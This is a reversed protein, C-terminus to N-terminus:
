MKSVRPEAYMKQAAYMYMKQICGQEDEVYVAMVVAGESQQQKQLTQNLYLNNHQPDLLAIKSVRSHLLRM